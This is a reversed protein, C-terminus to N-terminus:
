IMLPNILMEHMDNIINKSYNTEFLNNTMDPDIYIRPGIILNQLVLYVFDVTHM